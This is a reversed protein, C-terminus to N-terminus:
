GVKSCWIPTVPGVDYIETLLDLSADFFKLPKPVATMSTTSEKIFTKLSDSVQFVLQQGTENLREVLMEFRQFKSGGLEEDKQKKPERVRDNSDAANTRSHSM